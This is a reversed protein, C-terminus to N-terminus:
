IGSASCRVPAFRTVVRERPGKRRRERRNARTRAQERFHLEDPRNDINGALERSELRTHSSTPPATLPTQQSPHVNL